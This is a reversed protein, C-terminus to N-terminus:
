GNTVASETGSRRGYGSHRCVPLRNEIPTRCLDNRARRESQKVIHLIVCRWITSIETGYITRALGDSPRIQYRLPPHRCLRNRVISESITPRILDGNVHVVMPVGVGDGSSSSTPHVIRTETGRFRLSVFTRAVIVCTLTALLSRGLVIWAVSEPGSSM